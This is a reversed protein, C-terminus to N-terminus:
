MASSRRTEKVASILDQKSSVGVKAYIHRVHTDVTGKSICLEDRIFPHSRGEILYGLIETERPTLGYEAAVLGCVDENRAPATRGSGHEAPESLFLLAMLILLAFSYLLVRDGSEGVLLLANFAAVGAAAGTSIAALGFSMMRLERGTARRAISVIDMRLMSEFSAHGLVILVVGVSALASRGDTAFVAGFAVVPFIWRVAGFVDVRNSRTVFLLLLLGAALMGLAFLWLPDLALAPKAVRLAEGTLSILAYAVACRALMTSAFGFGNKAGSAEADARASAHGRTEPADDRAAICGTAGSPQAASGSLVYLGMQVVPLLLLMGVRVQAPSAVVLFFGLAVLFLVRVFVREIQEVDMFLLIRSWATWLMGISLGTCVGSATGSPDVDSLLSSMVMAVVQFACGLLVMTFFSREFRFRRPVAAVLLNVVTGMCLSVPWSPARFGSAGVLPSEIGASPFLCTTWLLLSAIGLAIALVERAAKGNDM